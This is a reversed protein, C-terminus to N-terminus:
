IPTISSSSGSVEEHSFIRGPGATCPFWIMLLDVFFSFCPRVGSFFAALACFITLTHICYIIAFGTRIKRTQLSLAKFWELMFM